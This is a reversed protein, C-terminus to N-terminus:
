PFRVLVSASTPGLLVVPKGTRASRASHRDSWLLYGGGALLGAGVIGSALSLRQRSDARERLQTAEALDPLQYGRDGHLADLSDLAQNAQHLFLGSAGLAFAGAVVGGIGTPTRWSRPPGAPAPPTVAAVPASAAPTVTPAPPPEPKPDEAVLPAIEVPNLDVQALLEEVSRRVYAATSEGRKRKVPLEKSTATGMREVILARVFPTRAFPALTILLARAAQTSRALRTLCQEPEAQGACSQEPEKALFERVATSSTLEVDRKAVVTACTAALNEAEAGAEGVIVCPHLAITEPTPAAAASPAALAACLLTCVLIFRSTIM